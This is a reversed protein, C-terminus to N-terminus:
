GCVTSLKTWLVAFGVFCAIVVIGVAIPAQFQTLFSQITFAQKASEEWANQWAKNTGVDTKINLISEKVSITEYLQNGKEDLLPNGGGDKLPKDTDEYEVLHETWSENLVPRYDEPGIQIVTILDSGQMYLKPDFIKIPIPKSFMSATPRKILVVGRKQNYLGKGWEGNIIKGDSRVLKIEVKLNWKRRQYVFFYVVALIIAAIAFVIAIMISTFLVGRGGSTFSQLTTGFDPM